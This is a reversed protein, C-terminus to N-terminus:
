DELVESLWRKATWWLAGDVRVQVMDLVKDVDYVEYVNGRQMMCAAQQNRADEYCSSAFDLKNERIAFEFLEATERELFAPVDDRLVTVRDGPDLHERDYERAERQRRREEAERKDQRRIEIRRQHQARREAREERGALLRARQRLEEERREDEGDGCGTLLTPTWLAVIVAFFCWHSLNNKM